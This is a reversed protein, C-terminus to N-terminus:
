EWSWYLVSEVFYKVNSIVRYLWLKDQKTAFCKMTEGSVISACPSTFVLFELCFFFFICNFTKFSFAFLVNNAALENQLYHRQRLEHCCASSAGLKENQESPLYFVGLSATTTTRLSWKFACFSNGTKIPKLLLTWASVSALIFSFVHRTSHEILM